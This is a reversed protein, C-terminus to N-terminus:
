LQPPVYGVVGHLRQVFLSEAAARLGANRIAIAWPSELQMMRGMLRSQRVISTTRPIRQKDYAQLAAAIATGTASGRLLSALVLADEMAQAGGQGLNPLMPHAADGLLTVCGMSWQRLPKRDHIPHFLIDAAPTAAIVAPVPPYWGRFAQEALRHREESAIRHGEPLNLAAFWFIEGKGLHSFGFRAGPGLAEFGGGASVPYRTDEYRGIGRLASYGSYLLPSKGHLQERVASHIGDAGILLDCKRREGDALSVEVADGRQEFSLFGNNWSITGGLEALRENLIAQLQRRHILCSPTGYRAEQKAVPLEALLQGKWTRIEGTGVRAGAERVRESVGLRELAKMANAALAIGAGSEALESRQECIDTEWGIMRLAIAACLGGIGGGVIVAQGPVLRV